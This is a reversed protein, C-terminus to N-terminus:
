KYKNNRIKELIQLMIKQLIIKGEKNQNIQQLMFIKELLIMMIKNM